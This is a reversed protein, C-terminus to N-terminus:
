VKTLSVEAGKKRDCESLRGSQLDKTKQQIPELYKGNLRHITTQIRALRTANDDIRPNMSQFGECTMTSDYTKKFEPEVFKALTVEMRSLREEDSLKVSTLSCDTTPAGVRSLASGQAKKILAPSDTGAQGVEGQIFKNAEEMLACVRAETDALPDTVNAFGETPRINLCASTLMMVVIVGILITGVAIVVETVDEASLRAAFYIVGVVVLAGFILGYPLLGEAAM